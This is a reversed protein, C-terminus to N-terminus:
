KYVDAGLFMFSPVTDVYGSIEMIKHVVYHSWVCKREYIWATRQFILVMCRRSIVAFIIYYKNLLNYKCSSQIKNCLHQINVQLQRKLIEDCFKLDGDSHSLVYVVILHYGLLVMVCLVQRLSEHLRYGTELEQL